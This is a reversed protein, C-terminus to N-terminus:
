PNSMITNWLYDVHDPCIESFEAFEVPVEESAEAIIEGWATMLTMFDAGTITWLRRYEGGVQHALWGWSALQGSAVHRDYIPGLAREVIEDAETERNVNCKLYQSIGAAPRDQTVAEVSQAAAPSWLYDDHVPCITNLEAAADANRELFEAVIAARTSFMTEMDPASWYGLRRWHGGTDHGLWGWSDIHGAEMHRNLIPALVEEAIEDARAEQGSTCQYYQAVVVGGDQGQAVAPVILLAGLVSLGVAQIKM